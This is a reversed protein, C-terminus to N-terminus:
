QAAGTAVAGTSRASPERWLLWALTVAGVCICSDAVNFAPFQTRDFRNTGAFFLVFDRVGGQPETFNDYLNGVAGAFILGLVLLRLRATARTRWAFYGIVFLAVSRLVVLATNADQFLGWITGQNWVKVLHLSIPGQFVPVEGAFTHGHPLGARDVLAFAAAKSWLDLAVLPVIPLWFWAKGGRGGRAGAEHEAAGTQAHGTAPM